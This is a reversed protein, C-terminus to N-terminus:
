LAIERHSSDESLSYLGHINHYMIHHIHHVSYVSKSKILTLSQYKFSELILSFIIPTFLLVRRSEQDLM